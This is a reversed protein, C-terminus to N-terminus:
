NRTSMIGLRLRRLITTISSSCNKGNHFNFVINGKSDSIVLDSIKDDTYDIEDVSWSEYENECPVIIKPATYLERGLGYLVCSRKFADSAVSKEKEFNGEAGANWKWIWSKSEKNYLALGCFLIGNEEKYQVSWGYPGFTEDLLNMSSRADQYVLLEAKGKFHRAARVYIEDSKLNRFLNM